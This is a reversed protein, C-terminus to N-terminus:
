KVKGVKKEFQKITQQLKKVLKGHYGYDFNLKLLHKIERLNNEQVIKHNIM